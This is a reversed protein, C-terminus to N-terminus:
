VRRFIYNDAAKRYGIGRQKKEIEEPTIKELKKPVFYLNLNESSCKYKGNSNNIISILEFDDDLFAMTADGHSNNVLLFGNLKLYQKCYKSIIGAYQSILLDFSQNKLDLPERYDSFHFAIEPEQNYIKRKMIFDYFRPDHFFYPARKDTDVYATKPYVFSPTIHIFSGPYLSSNISFLDRLLIFLELREFDKDIFYQKYLQVPDVNKNLLNM